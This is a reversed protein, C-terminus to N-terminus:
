GALSHHVPPRLPGRVAACRVDHGASAQPDFAPARVAHRELGPKGVFHRDGRAAAARSLRSACGAGGGPSRHWGDFFGLLRHGGELRQSHRHSRARGPVPQEQRLGPCQASGHLHRHVSRDALPALAARADALGAGTGAILAEGAEERGTLRALLGRDEVAREYPRGDEAYIGITLVPAVRELLPKIGDLYPISVIVDPGLQQLLELNPELLTGLDPIDPPLHPEVVWTGWSERIM